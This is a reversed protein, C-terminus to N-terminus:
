DTLVTVIAMASDIDPDIDGALDNYVFGETVRTIAYALTPAPARLELTGRKQESRLLEGLWAVVTSQVPGGRATLIRLALRTENRVLYRLPGSSAVGSVFVRFVELVREQGRRDGAQEDARALARESLYRLVDGLLQERSCTWRYLTAKAVGIQEALRGMDLRTEANFVALAAFFAGAPTASEVSEIGEEGRAAKFAPSAFVRRPVIAPSAM